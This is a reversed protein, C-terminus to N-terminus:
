PIDGQLDIPKGGRELSNQAALALRLVARADEPRGHLSLEGYQISTVFRSMQDAYPDGIPPTLDQVDGQAPYLTLRRTTPKAYSEGQFHFELVGRECIARLLMTFPFTPPVAFSSAAIVWTTEDYVLCSDVHVWAGSPARWGYSTITRGQGLAWTFFDLDHIQADFVGLSYRDNLIWGQWAGRTMGSMRAAYMTHVHGLQGSTLLEHARM